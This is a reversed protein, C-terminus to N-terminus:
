IKVVMDMAERWVADLACPIYQTVGPPVMLADTWVTPYYGLGKLSCSCVVQRMGCPAQEPTNGHSGSDCAFECMSHQLMDVVLERNNQEEADEAEPCAEVGVQLPGLM